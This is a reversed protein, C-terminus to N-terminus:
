PTDSELIRNIETLLQNTDLPKTLYTIGATKFFDKTEQGMVDGTIFVIKDTKTDMKGM